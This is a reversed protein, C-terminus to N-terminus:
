PINDHEGSIPEIYEGTGAVHHNQDGKEEWAKGM